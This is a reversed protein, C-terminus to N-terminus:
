LSSLLELIKALNAYTLLCLLVGRGHRFGVPGAFLAIICVALQTFQDAEDGGSWCSLVQKVYCGQSYQFSSALQVEM